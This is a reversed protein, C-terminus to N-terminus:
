NEEVLAKLQETREQTLRAMCGSHLMPAMSGGRAAFSESLCHQDRYTLWARQAALLTDYHTPQSDYSRDITKDRAKLAAVTLKWQANLEADAADYEKGACFNMEVQYQANECDVAPEQAAAALLMLSMLMM